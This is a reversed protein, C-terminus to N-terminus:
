KLKWSHDCNVCQYKNKRISVPLVTLIFFLLGSLISHQQFIDPSDCKPCRLVPEIDDEFLSALEEDNTKKHSLVEQATKLDEAAVFIKIGGIANAYYPAIQALNGDAIRADLGEDRLKMLDLEAKHLFDHTKVLRYSPM